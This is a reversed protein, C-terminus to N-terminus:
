SKLKTRAAFLSNPFPSDDDTNEILRKEDGIDVVVDAVPDGNVDGFFLAKELLFTKRTVIVLAGPEQGARPFTFAKAQCYLLM